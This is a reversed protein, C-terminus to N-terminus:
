GSGEVKNGRRKVWSGNREPHRMIIMEAGYIEAMKELVEPIYIRPDQSYKYYRTDPFYCIIQSLQKYDMCINASTTILINKYGHQLDYYYSAIKTDNDTGWLIYQQDQFRMSLSLIDPFVVLSQTYITHHVLEITQFPDIISSTTVANPWALSNRSKITMTKKKQEQKLYISINPLFLWLVSKYTSCYYYVMRHVLTMSDPSLLATCIEPNHIPFFMTDNVYLEKRSIDAGLTVFYVGNSIILDGPNGYLVTDRCVQDHWWKNAFCYYYFM